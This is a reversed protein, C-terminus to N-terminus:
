KRAKGPIPHADKKVMEKFDFPKYNPSEKNHCKTCVAENQEVLGAALALDHNKMNVLKRYESGPGHCAECGVGEDFTCTPDVLEKKVGYATVHCRICEPAKQPDASVGVKKAVEKAEPTGLTQFAGAHKSKQWISYQNGKKEGKHCMRACKNSGIYHPEVAFITGACCGAVLLAIVRKMFVGKM